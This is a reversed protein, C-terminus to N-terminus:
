KPFNFKAKSNTVEPSIKQKTIRGDIVGDRADIEGIKRAIDEKTLIEQDSMNELLSEIIITLQGVESELEGIRKTLSSQSHDGRSQFIRKQTNALSTSDALRRLHAAQAQDPFFFDFLSMDKLESLEDV